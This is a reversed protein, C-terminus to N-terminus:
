QDVEAHPLSNFYLSLRLHRESARDVEAHPLSNFHNDAILGQSFFQDVEAHPLSNFYIVPQFLFALIPDVEAHPLSNFHIYSCRFQAGKLRGRRSTTLQFVFSQSLNEIGRTQRQTLYHTSISALEDLNKLIDTQRQTLYHTSIKNVLVKKRIEKTQRQTLYHTSIIVPYAPWPCTVDVEAHPLSNFHDAPLLHAFRIPRGRRSTTLQFTGVRSTCLCHETQRQTLYHTSIARRRNKGTGAWRDVEAHPLSNFYM